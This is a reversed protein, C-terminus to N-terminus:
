SIHKDHWNKTKEKYLKANEYAVHRLEELEHLELVRKPSAKQKDFNLAKIAWYTKHELEVSLYCPKGYVLKFNTM